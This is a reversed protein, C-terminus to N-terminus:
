LEKKMNYADEGLKQYYNKRIGMIKFNFKKYLNIAATNKSSVELWIQKADKALSEEVLHNIMKTAIGRNKYAKDVAITYIQAEDLVHSSIYFAIIKGNKEVVYHNLFTNSELNKILNERPWPNAFAQKEIDYVEDIDFLEMKRIM